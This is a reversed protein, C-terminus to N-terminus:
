LDGQGSCLLFSAARDSQARKPGSGCSGQTNETETMAQSKAFIDGNLSCQWTANAIEMFIEREGKKELGDRQVPM